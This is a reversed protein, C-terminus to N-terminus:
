SNQTNKRTFDIGYFSIVIVILIGMIIVSLLWPMYNGGPTPEMLPLLVFMFNMWTHIILAPVISQKTNNQIWAIILSFAVDNLIFLWLPLFDHHPFGVMFFLPLHWFGWIFGLILNASFSNTKEEMRPKAYGRWGFEEALPGDILLFIFFMLPILWLPIITVPFSGNFLFVNLLHALIVLIPVLIILPIWWWGLKFNLWRKMNNKFGSKGEFKLTLSFASVMPGFPAIMGLIFYVMFSGGILGNTYLVAPFWLAWTFSYAIIFYLVLDRNVNESEM